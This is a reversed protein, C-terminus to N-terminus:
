KCEFQPILVSPGALRLYRFLFCNRHIWSGYTWRWSLKQFVEGPPHYALLLLVLRLPRCDGLHMLWPFRTLLTIHTAM